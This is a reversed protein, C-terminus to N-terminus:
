RRAKLLNRRARAPQRRPRQDILETERLHPLAGTADGAEKRWFPLHASLSTFM